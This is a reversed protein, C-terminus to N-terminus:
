EETAAILAAPNIVYVRALGEGAIRVRKTTRGDGDREAIAGANDLCALVRKLDFGQAADALADPTFLYLRGDGHARYWGARDHVPAANTGDTSAFRAANRDIYASVARLIKADESQGRGRFAVWAGFLELMAAQATGPPWPLLGASTALEGALAAVAFRAAARAEQGTGTPFAQRTAAYADELQTAHDEDAAATVLQEVFAPGLHGYHQATTRRLLDAFARGAGKRGEENAPDHSLALGHLEDFAGFRRYTPVDLLRLEQGAKSRMGASEMHKGMTLEGSSLVVVRWKQVQQPLGSVKGRQRGTGNGLAYIIGGVDQPKAEGIEDLALLTDNRLTAVGELGTSTANWTRLFDRPKGWVSAAVLLAITKGSSSDGLLHFGGGDADLPALLPGALAACVALILTPNGLCRAAIETQWAALEGGEAYEHGGAQTSQFVVDGGGIVRRPMVFLQPGHWGTRTAAMAHRPPASNMLYDMLTQRQKHPITAGLNLLVARLESGDGALMEMPAAWERWRTAGHPLLRLLRGFNEGREDSTIALVELPSCVLTDTETDDKIGHFYLGPALIHGRATQVWAAYTAWSPRAPTVTPHKIKAAKRRSRPKSAAKKAKAPADTAPSAPADQAATTTATKDAAELTM